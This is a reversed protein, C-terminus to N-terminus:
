SGSVGEVPAAFMPRLSGRYEAIEVNTLRTVGVQLGFQNAYTTFLLSAVPDEIVARELSESDGIARIVYPSGLRAANVLVTTGACRIPTTAVVREGNIEVAEAGDALLANVVASIDTDHILYDNPDVGPAVDSGDGLTLEVGPGTVATLGALARAEALERTFTDSVGADEAAERELGEMEDRLDALRDELELRQEEMDRVVGVLDSARDPVAEVLRANTNFSVAILFGLVGVIVVLAPRYISREM